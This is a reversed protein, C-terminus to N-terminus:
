ISNYYYIIDISFYSYKKKSLETRLNKILNEQTSLQDSQSTCLRTLRRNEAELYEVSSGATTTTTSVVKGDNIRQSRQVTQSHHDQNNLKQDVSMKKLQARLREIEQRLAAILQDDTDTKELM